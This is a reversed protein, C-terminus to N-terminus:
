YSQGTLNFFIIGIVMPILVYLSMILEKSYQNTPFFSLQDIKIRDLLKQCIISISWSLMVINIVSLLKISIFLSFVTIGLCFIISKKLSFEQSHNLLCTNGGVFLGVVLYIIPANIYKWHFVINSASIVIITTAILELIIKVPKSMPTEKISPILKNKWFLWLIPDTIRTSSIPSSLTLNPDSLPLAGLASIAFFKKEEFFSDAIDILRPSQWQSILDRVEESVIDIDEEDFGKYHNPEDFLISGYGIINRLLDSKSLVFAVPITIKKEM